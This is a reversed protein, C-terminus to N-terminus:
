LSRRGSPRLGRLQAAVLEMRRRRDSRADREDASPAAAVAAQGARVAATLRTPSSGPRDAPQPAAM